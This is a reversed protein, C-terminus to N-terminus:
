PGSRSRLGCGGPLARLTNDGFAECECDCDCCRLLAVVIVCCCCRAGGLWLNGGVELRTDGVKDAKVLLPVGLGVRGHQDGGGADERAFQDGSPGDHHGLCVGALLRSGLGLRRCLGSSPDDTAVGPALGAHVEAHAPVRQFPLRPRPRSSSVGGGKWGERRRGVPRELGRAIVQQDTEQLRRAVRSAQCGQGVPRAEEEKGM